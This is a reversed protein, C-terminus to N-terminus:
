SEKNILFSKFSVNSEDYALKISHLTKKNMLLTFVGTWKEVQIVQTEEGIPRLEWYHYGYLFGHKGGKWGFKKLKDFDVIEGTFSYKKDPNDHLHMDVIIKSNLSFSGKIKEIQHNWKPFLEPDVLAKWVTEINQPIVISTEVKTM